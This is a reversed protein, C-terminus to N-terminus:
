NYPMLKAFKAALTRTTDSDPFHIEYTLGFSSHSVEQVIGVGFQQHYVKEGISFGEPDASTEHRIAPSTSSANQLFRVPIEKLFRSPRM